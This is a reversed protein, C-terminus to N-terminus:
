AQDNITSEQHRLNSPWPFRPIADVEIRSQHRDAEAEGAQILGEIRGRLPTIITRAVAKQLPHAHKKLTVPDLESGRDNGQQDILLRILTPPLFFSAFRSRTSISCPIRNEYPTSNKWNKSYDETYM